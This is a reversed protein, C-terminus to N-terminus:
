HLILIVEGITTNTVSGVTVIPISPIEYNNIGRINVTKNSYNEIIRVNNDTVGSNAGRDVLSHHASRSAKSINYTVCNSVERYTKGDTVIESKFFSKRLSLIIVISALKSKNTTSMLKRMNSPNVKSASVSNVLISSEQTNDLDAIASPEEEGVLLESLLQHLNAKTFSNNGYNPPKVSKFPISKPKYSNFSNKSYSNSTAGKNRGEIIITKMNNPM